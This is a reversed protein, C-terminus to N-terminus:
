TELQEDNIATTCDEWKAFLWSRGLKPRNFRARTLRTKVQPYTREPDTTCILLMVCM